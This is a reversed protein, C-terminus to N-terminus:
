HFPNILGAACDLHIQNANILSEFRQEGCGIAAPISFEACRIAMHSNAGGYKTILGSIQQSFIWDFGPDANEILVIKGMLEESIEGMLLYICSTAIKKNTIFNPHSVQFPVIHVGAEDFLVQPLRIASSLAHLEAKEESILRLREESSEAQSNTIIELFNDIPIHSLEDRSLGHKEGFNAIIELVSSVSKTFVFKSYERSTISSRIYILLKEANLELFGEKVLLQDIDIRQKESFAFNNNNKEQFAQSNTKRFLDIQDYRPSLIDYTGPRLHGYCNMFDNISIKGLQLLQMDNVLDSAVTHIGSQISNIDEITLIGCRNLSKLITQAIFGHRALIAFPTTGLKICDDIIGFLTAVEQGSSLQSIEIQKETLEKIKELANAISHEGNGMLLSHTLKRLEEKFISKETQTLVDGILLDIKEDIDFSYATIAVEFEIKDHLEPHTRLRQIFIDVLKKAIDAPLSNPM